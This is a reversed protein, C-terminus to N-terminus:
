NPIELLSIGVYASSDPTIFSLVDGGKVYRHCEQGSIFEVNGTLSITGAGPSSPTVNYGVFVNANSITKLRAKYKQSNTGPVTYTQAIGTALAMNASTDSFPETNNFNSHFQTTM